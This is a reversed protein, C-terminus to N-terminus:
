RDLYGVITKTTLEFMKFSACKYVRVNQDTLVTAEFSEPELEMFVKPDYDAMEKYLGPRLKAEEEHPDLGKSVASMYNVIDKAERGGTYKSHKGNEFIILAPYANYNFVTLNTWM